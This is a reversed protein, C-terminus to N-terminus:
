RRAQRPNLPFITACTLFRNRYATSAIQGQGDLRSFNIAALVLPTGEASEPEGHVHNIQGIKLLKRHVPSEELVLAPVLMPLETAGDWLIASLKM